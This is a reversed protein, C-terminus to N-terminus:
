ISSHKCSNYCKNQIFVKFTVACDASYQVTCFVWELRMVFIIRSSFLLFIFLIFSFIVVVVSLLPSPKCKAENYLSAVFGFIPLLIICVVVFHWLRLHKSMTMPSQMSFHHLGYAMYIISYDACLYRGLYLCPTLSLFLAFFLFKSFIVSDSSPRGCSWM